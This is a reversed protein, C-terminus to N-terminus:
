IMHVLAFWNLQFSTKTRITFDFMSKSNRTYFLQNTKWFLKSNSSVLISLLDSLILLFRSVACLQVHSQTQTDCAYKMM